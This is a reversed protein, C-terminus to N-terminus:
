PLEKDPLGIVKLAENLMPNGGLREIEALIQEFLNELQAYTYDFSGLEELKSVALKKLEVKRTKQSLIGTQLLLQTNASLFKQPHNILLFEFEGICFSM